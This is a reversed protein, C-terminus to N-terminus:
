ASILAKYTIFTTKIPRSLMHQHIQFAKKLMQSRDCLTILTTYYECNPEIGSMTMGKHTAVAELVYNGRAATVMLENFTLENAALYFM